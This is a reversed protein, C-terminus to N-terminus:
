VIKSLESYAIMYAELKNLKAEPEGAKACEILSNAILDSQLKYYEKVTGMGAIQNETVQLKKMLKTM